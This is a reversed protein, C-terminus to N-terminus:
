KIIFVTLNLPSSITTIGEKLPPIFLLFDM